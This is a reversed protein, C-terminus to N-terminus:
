RLLVMKKTQSFEPTNMRYFYIGSSVEEGSDDKGDWDVVKHGAKLRQDVLTRVKQGLINFIEIEVQGSRPLLFEINTTPNFPNPYNQFLAFQNPSTSNEEYDKVDSPRGLCGSQFAPTFTVAADTVYLLNNSPPFFTSDIEVDAPPNWSPGATFHLTAFLGSGPQLWGGYGPWQWVVMVKHEPNNINEFYTDLSLGILRSGVLSVSDCVVDLGPYGFSLPIVVAALVVSNTATIQVTPKDGPCVPSICEVAVLDLAPECDKITFNNNSIDAGTNGAADYAEVKVRCQTSPTDPITWAYVGDNSENGDIPIWSSGGNTSYYLAINTVGINDSASWLINYTTDICWNEYGDPDIVTVSPPQSDIPMWSADFYINYDFGVKGAWAAAQGLIGDPGYTAVLAVRDDAIVSSADTFYPVVVWSTPNEITSYALSYEHDLLNVFGLWYRNGSGPEISVHPLYDTNTSYMGICHDTWNSGNDTSYSYYIRHIDEGVWETQHAIVVFNSKADVIPFTCERDLGPDIPTRNEPPSWSGGWLYARSYWVRPKTWQGFDENAVFAVHLYVASSYINCACSQFPTANPEYQIEAVVQEQWPPWTVGSDTSYKFKIKKHTADYYVVGLYPNLFTFADCCIYPRHDNDTDGDIYLVTDMDTSGIPFRAMLIDSNSAGYDLRFVIFAHTRTVQVVPVALPYTADLEVISWQNGHNSSFAVGIMDVSSTGSWKEYVVYIYSGDPSSDIFPAKEYYNASDAIPIDEDWDWMPGRGHIEGVVRAEIAIEKKGNNDCISTQINGKESAQISQPFLIIGLLGGLIACKVAVWISWKRMSLM